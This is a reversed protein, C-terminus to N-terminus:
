AERTLRSVLAASATRLIAGWDGQAAQVNGLNVRTRSQHPDLRLSTHYEKAALDLQAGSEYAVGLDGHETASLPDHLIVLHACGTLAPVALLAALM